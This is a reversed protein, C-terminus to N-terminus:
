DHSTQSTAPIFDAPESPETNNMWTGERNFVWSYHIADDKTFNIDYFFKDNGTCSATWTVNSTQKINTVFFVIDPTDIAQMLISKPLGELPIGKYETDDKAIEVVIYRVFLCVVAVAVIYGIFKFVKGFNSKVSDNMAVVM